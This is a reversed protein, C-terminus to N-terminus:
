AAAQTAAEQNIRKQDEPTLVKGTVKATTDIVLRGIEHKLEALTKEREAQTAERAKQIIQEAQAIAEQQKKEALHASSQRAEEIMRQAEANAKSLIEEYRKEADALQQKVKLSNEHAEEIMRRRQELMAVVPKFAFKSLVTYVLLFIVVQSLFKPWDVAFMTLIEQLTEM